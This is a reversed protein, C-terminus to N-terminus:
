PLLSLESDVARPIIGDLRFDMMVHATYTNAAASTTISKSVTSGLPTMIYM